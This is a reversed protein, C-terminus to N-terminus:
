SKRFFEFHTYVFYIVKLLSQFFFFINNRLECIKPFIEITNNLIRINQPFFTYNTKNYIVCKIIYKISLRINKYACFTM